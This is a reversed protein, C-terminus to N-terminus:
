AAGNWARVMDDAGDTDNLAAVALRHRFPRAAYGRHHVARTFITNGGVTFVLNGAGKARIDHPRPGADIFYAVFWGGVRARKQTVSTVRFSKRTKGSRVPVAPRYRRVTNTGWRRAYPKFATRVAAIRRRLDNGGVLRSM